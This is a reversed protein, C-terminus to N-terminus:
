PVYGNIAKDERFKDLAWKFYDLIAATEAEQM